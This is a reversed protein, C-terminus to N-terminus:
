WASWGSGCVHTRVKSVAMIIQPSPLNGRGPGSRAEQYDPQTMKQSLIATKREEVPESSYSATHLDTFSREYGFPLLVCIDPKTHRVM